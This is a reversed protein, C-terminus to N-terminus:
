RNVSQDWEVETGLQDRLWDLPWFKGQNCSALRCTPWLLSFERNRSLGDAPRGCQFCRDPLTVSLVEIHEARFGIEGPIIDGSLEVELTVAM